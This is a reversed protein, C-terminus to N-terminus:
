TRMAGAHGNPSRSALEDVFLRNKARLARSMAFGSHDPITRELASAMLRIDEMSFRELWYSFYRSHKSDIRSM